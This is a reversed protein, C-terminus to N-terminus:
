PKRATKLKIINPSSYLNHLKENHINRWEETVNDKKAGFMRKLERNELDL